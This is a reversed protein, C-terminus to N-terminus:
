ASYKVAWTKRKSIPRCEVITVEQDVACKNEPDHALYSKTRRIYKKYIPHLVRSEVQVRVTKDCTTNM